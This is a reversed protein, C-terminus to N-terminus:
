HASPTIDLIREVFGFINQWAGTVSIIIGTLSLEMVVSGRRLVAQALPQLRAKAGDLKLPQLLVSRVPETVFHLETSDDDDSEEDMGLGEPQTNMDVSVILSILREELHYLWRVEDQYYREQMTKRVMPIDQLVTEMVDASSALQTISMEGLVVATVILAFLMRIDEQRRQYRVADFERQTDDEDPFNETYFSIFGNAIHYLQRDYLAKETKLVRYFRSKVSILSFRSALREYEEQRLSSFQPFLKSLSLGV